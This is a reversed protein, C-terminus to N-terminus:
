VGQPRAVTRLVADVADALSVDDARRRRARARARRLSEADAFGLSTVIEGARGAGGDALLLLATRSTRAGHGSGEDLAIHALADITDFALPSPLGGEILQAVGAAGGLWNSLHDVCLWNPPRRCGLYTRLSSWRYEVLPRGRMLPHPNLHVYRFAATLYDETSIEKSTFRGRLLPGDSHYRDNIWRTFRSQVYQMSASLGGDPCRVLLHFHNPMLCYAHVEVGYRGVARGLVDGFAVRDRDDHFIDRRDGGRNMVHHWGDQQLSRM